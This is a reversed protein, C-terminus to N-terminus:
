KITFANEIHCVEPHGSGYVIGVVDFRYVDAAYKRRGMWDRAARAMERQKRWHVAALPGGCSASMRTKVEVFAVTRGEVGLRQMVLDIDRHGSRFRRDIVDWGRATLWEEAIREGRKGLEQRASNMLSFIQFVPQPAMTVARPSDSTHLWTSWRGRSALNPLFM